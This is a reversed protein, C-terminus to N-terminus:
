AEYLLVAEREVRPRIRPKLAAWTGLDVPRGFIEQLERAMRAHGLLSVRADPRLEMVLDVDSGPRMQRRAASGFLALSRVGHRDAWAALAPRPVDIPDRAPAEATAQESALREVDTRRLRYHSGPRTASLRGEHILRKVTNISGVGLLRAAETTTILQDSM